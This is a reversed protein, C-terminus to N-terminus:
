SKYPSAPVIGEIEARTPSLEIPNSPTTEFGKRLCLAGYDLDMEAGALGLLEDIHTVGLSSCMDHFSNVVAQDRRTLRVEVSLGLSQRILYILCKKAFETADPSKWILYELYELQRKSVESM